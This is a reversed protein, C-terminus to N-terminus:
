VSQFGYRAALDRHIFRRQELYAMGSAVQIAYQCLTHILVPGQPHVRRLRDLLSGLPALETVQLVAAPRCLTILLSPSSCLCTKKQELSGSGVSGNEDPTHAGCRLPPHPESPGPLAHRQGRLHFGGSRRASQPRGDEPMKCGREAPPDSLNYVASTRKGTNKGRWGRLIFWCVAEWWTGRPRWGSGERWSASRAMASSRSCRWTRRQSLAPWPRSSGATSRVAAAMCSPTRSETAWVFRLRSPCSASPLPRSVRRLPNVKQDSGVSCRSHLLVLLAVVFAVAIFYFCLKFWFLLQSWDDIVCTQPCNLGSVRISIGAKQWLIYYVQSKRHCIM